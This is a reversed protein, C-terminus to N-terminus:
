LRLKVRTWVLLSIMIYKWYLRNQVIINGTPRNYHILYITIKQLRNAVTKELIKSIFSLNSVPRDNKLQYEPLSTKKLLPRVHAEKFNQLFTSTEMSINIIDTIPTILIDLCNKLVSTPIPDLDCSKSSAHAWFLKQFEDEPITLIKQLLM